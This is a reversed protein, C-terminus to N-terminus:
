LNDGLYKLIKSKDHDSFTIYGDFKDTKIHLRAIYKHGEREIGYKSYEKCITDQLKYIKEAIETINNETVVLNLSNFDGILQKEEKELYQKLVLEYDDWVWESYQLPANMNNEAIGYTTTITIEENGVPRFYYVKSNKGNVKVRLFNPKIPDVEYDPLDKFESGIFEFDINYRDELISEISGVTSTLYYPLPTAILLVILVTFLILLGLVVILIIRFIKKIEM